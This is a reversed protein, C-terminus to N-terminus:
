RFAHRVWYVFAFVAGLVVIMALLWLLSEGAVTLYFKTLRGWYLRHFSFLSLRRYIRYQDVDDRVVAYVNLPILPIWLLTLWHMKLICPHLAEDKIWGLLTFGCGNIRGLLPGGQLPRLRKALEANRATPLKPAKTM